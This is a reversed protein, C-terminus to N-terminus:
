SVHYMYVNFQVIDSFLHQTKCKARRNSHTGADTHSIHPLQMNYNNKAAVCLVCSVIAACM